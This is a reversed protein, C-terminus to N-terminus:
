AQNQETVVVCLTEMNSPNHFPPPSIEHWVGPAPLDNCARAVIPAADTGPGADAPGSSGGSASGGTGAVGTGGSSGGTGGSGNNPSAKPDTCSANGMTLLAAAGIVRLFFTTKM